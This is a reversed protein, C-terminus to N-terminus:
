DPKVIFLKTKNDDYIGQLFATNELVSPNGSVNLENTGFFVYSINYKELIGYKVSSNSNSFFVHYDKMRQAWDPMSENFDMHVLTKKNSHLPLFTGIERSALVRGHPFGELFKLANYESTTYYTPYLVERPYYFRIGTAIVVSPLTLIIIVAAIKKYDTKHFKSFLLIGEAAVVSAPVILFAVLRATNYSTVTIFFFILLWILFLSYSDEKLDNKKIVMYVLGLVISLAALEIVFIQGYLNKLLTANSEVLSIVAPNASNHLISIVRTFSFLIIPVMLIFIFRKNIKHRIGYAAFVLLGSFSILYSHILASGVFTRSKSYIDFFLPASLYAYIWPFTFPASIVYTYLAKAANEKSFKLITVLLIFLASSIGFIPYFILTLGLMAGSALTTYKGRQLFFMFALYGLALPVLHYSLTQNMAYIGGGTGIEPLDL